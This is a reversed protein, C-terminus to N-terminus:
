VTIYDKMKEYTKEGIGSVNKIEEKSKFSGTTERYDIIKQATSPGVGPILQLDDSEAININVIYGNDTETVATRGTYLGTSSGGSSSGTGTYYLSDPDRSGIIIKQGDTVIEAQNISDTDATEKLGGAKEVLQFLRTGEDVEYVGPAKVDGGIDVFIKVSTSSVANSASMDDDDSSGDEELTSEQSMTQEANVEAGSENVVISDDNGGGFIWFLIIAIGVVVPMVIKKLDDKNEHVFKKLGNVDKIRKFEDLKGM